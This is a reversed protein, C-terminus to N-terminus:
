TLGRWAPLVGLVACEAIGALAAFALVRWDIATTELRPLNAPAHRVLTGVGTGRKLDFFYANSLLEDALLLRAEKPYPLPRLLVADTVSFIATSAGIGLAITAVAACDFAPAKRLIRAAYALATVLDEGLSVHRVERCEEL